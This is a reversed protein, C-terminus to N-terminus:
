AFPLKSVEGKSLGVSKHNILKPMETYVFNDNTITGSIVLRCDNYM